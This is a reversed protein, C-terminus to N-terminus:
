KVVPVKEWPSQTFERSAFCWVVIKKGGLKDKRRMLNRRAPTAGSGKVAVVDVPSKLELALLEPLGAGTAHMDGGASFVLNHSDGLLLVPSAQSIAAPAVSLAKVVESDQGGGLDGKVAIESEQPTFQSQPLEKAWPRATILGAIKKAALAIGAPSWHTDTRCYPDQGAARAQRFDETLDLVTIGKARLAESAARDPASLDGTAGLKDSCVAAKCPVPVVVLEVGARELQAKFDAITEIAQTPLNTDSLHKLEKDLFLWRDQGAYTMTNSRACSELAAQLAPEAARAPVAAACVLLATLLPAKPM